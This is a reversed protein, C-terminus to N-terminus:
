TGPGGMRSGMRGAAPVKTLCLFLHRLPRLPVFPLRLLLQLLDLQLLLLQSPVWSECLVQFKMTKKTSLSLDIFAHFDIPQYISLYISIPFVHLSMNSTNISCSKILKAHFVFSHFIDILHPSLWRSIVM